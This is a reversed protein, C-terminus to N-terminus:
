SPDLEGMAAYAAGIAAVRAAGAPGLAKLVAGALLSVLSVAAAYSDFASVSEIPVDFRWDGGSPPLSPDVILLVRPAAAGLERLLEGSGAARRRVGVVVVVDEAGLGVLEEGVAQGQEPALRVDPRAQALAQRLLMAIPFGSRLGLVVVRDAVALAAAASRLVARDVGGAMRQLNLVDRAVQAAIPDDGDDGVVVPLGESRQARLVERAEQSDAFGLRRFLRSVTAKSVGTRRALESSNYLASEDPRSRLFGAVRQEQPSLAPWAADIREALPGRQETM